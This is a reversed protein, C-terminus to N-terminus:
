SIWMSYNKIFRWSNNVKKIQIVGGNSGMPITWKDYGLYIKDDVMKIPSFTIVIKSNKVIWSSDVVESLENFFENAQNSKKWHKQLSSKLSDNFYVKYDNESKTLHGAKNDFYEALYYSNYKDLVLSFIEIIDANSLSNHFDLSAYTLKTNFSKEFLIEKNGFEPYELFFDTLVLFIVVSIIIYIKRM